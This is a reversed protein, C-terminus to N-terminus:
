AVGRLRQEVKVDRESFRLAEVAVERDVDTVVVLNVLAVDVGQQALEIGVGM